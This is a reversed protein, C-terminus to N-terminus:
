AAKVLGRAVVVFLAAVFYMLVGYITGPLMMVDDKLLTSAIVIALTVNQISSEIAVTVAQRKEVGVARSLGYGLALMVGMIAVIPPALTATNERFLAFRKSVAVFVVLLFAALAVKALPKDVRQAFAPARARLAMGLMVPLGLIVFIQAMATGAPFAVTRGAGMFHELAAGVIFPVTFISAIGAFATFSLALAVDGRAYLTLLNSTTGTPCAALIMFGVAIAGEIGLAKMALFAVLPLLLFHCLLGVLFARPYAFVRRFDAVVLGVGLSFMILMLAAPLGLQTVLDGQM